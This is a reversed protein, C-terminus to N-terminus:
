GAYCIAPADPSKHLSVRVGLRHRVGLHPESTMPAMSQRPRAAATTTEATNYRQTSFGECSNDDRIRRERASRPVTANAAAAAPSFVLYQITATEPTAFSPKHADYYAALQADTPQVKAAYDAPKLVIAQIERQQQALDTLHQAVSKPTFASDILNNPLQSQTLQYRVSEQYQDPTMGQMAQQLGQFQQQMVQQRLQEMLQNFMERANPDMFDYNQLGQIQGPVDGPVTSASAARTM